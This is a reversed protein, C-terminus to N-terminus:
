GAPEKQFQKLGELTINWNEQIREAISVMSVIEKALSRAMKPSLIIQGGREDQVVVSAQNNVIMAAIAAKNSVPTSDAPKIFEKM